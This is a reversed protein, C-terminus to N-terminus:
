AGVGTFRKTGLKFFVVTFVSMALVAVAQIGVIRPIDLSIGGLEYSGVCVRVPVYAIFQFPLYFLIKQLVDPFFTLPLFMGSCIDRLLLFMRRVGSTRTLWFATIGVCYDVLFMMIFGLMISIVAFVPRAPVIRVGFVFFLILYVPIFEITFGLVRHGVKQSLAFYIHSMPRLMYSLFKGTSILMQLNWDAFDMILYNILVAVGFYNIMQDLSLGNISGRSSFVAKWIFIQVLFYVPGVFLSVMAHSRYAAWEKYTAFAVAKMISAAKLAPGAAAKIISM